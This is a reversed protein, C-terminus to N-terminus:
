LSLADVLALGRGTTAQTGFSRPRPKHSSGDAVSLRVRQDGGYRLQVSFGTGAHLVANTALETVVLAALWTLEAAGWGDLTETTFRRAASVEWADAAFSREVPDIDGDEDAMAVVM